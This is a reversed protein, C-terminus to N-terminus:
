GSRRERAVGAVLSAGARRARPDAYSLLDLAVAAAPAFRLGDLVWAEDPVARLIVNSEPASVRQLRHARELAAVLGAPVYADVADSGVLGIEYAAAASAGSLVIAGREYLARMEGSLTWYAVPEARRELRASLAELGYVRLAQRVRWRAPAALQSPLNSGSALLLLAWANVPALPRGPSTQRRKRRAVSARDILWVGGIKEASLAGSAILARVRAPNLNLEGAAASVSLADIM